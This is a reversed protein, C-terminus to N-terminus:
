AVVAVTQSGVVRSEFDVCWWAYPSKKITISSCRRQRPAPDRGVLLAEDKRAFLKLDFGRQNYCEFRTSGGDREGFDFRRAGNVVDLGFDLVSIADGRILLTEDESGDGQWWTETHKERDHKQIINLRVWWHWIGVKRTRVVIVLMRPVWSSLSSSGVHSTTWKNTGGGGSM